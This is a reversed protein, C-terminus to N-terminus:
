EFAATLVAVDNKQDIMATATSGYKHVPPPHSTSKELSMEVASWDVVTETIDIFVKNNEGSMNSWALVWNIDNKAKYVVGVKSYGDYNIKASSEKRIVQPPKVSGYWERQDLLILDNDSYNFVIGELVPGPGSSSLPNTAM